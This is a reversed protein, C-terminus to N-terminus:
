YVSFPFYKKNIKEYTGNAVIEKIAKSFANALDQDDKRVAIGAGEGFIPDRIPEGVFKFDTGDASDLFEQGVVVDDLIFDVRGAALDKQADTSKDYEVVEAGATKFAKDAYKYHTTGKQVAIRKGKMADPTVAGAYTKPAVLRAPTQYYKESFGVSKKREETISMSAIYADFKGAVLAPIAGDWDQQVWTCEAKMQECLAKGIDVDFGALQGNADTVNFPPYAGESAMKIKSWDKAQAAGALAVAAGVVLTAVFKKVM